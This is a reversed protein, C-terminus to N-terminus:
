GTMHRMRISMHANQMLYYLSWMILVACRRQCMFYGQPTYNYSCGVYCTGVNTYVYRSLVYIFECTWVQRPGMCYPLISWDSEQVAPSNLPSVCVWCWSRSHQKLWSFSFSFPLEVRCVQTILYIHLHVGWILHMVVVNVHILYVCTSKKKLNWNNGGAIFHDFGRFRRNYIISSSSSSSLHVFSIALGWECMCMCRPTLNFRRHKRTGIYVYM